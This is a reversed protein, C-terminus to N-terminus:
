GSVIPKLKKKKRELKEKQEEDKLAKEKVESDELAEKANERRKELSAIYEDIKFDKEGLHRKILGIMTQRSNIEIFKQHIAQCRLIREEPKDIALALSKISARKEPCLILELVISFLLAEEDRKLIPISSLYERLDDSIQYSAVLPQVYSAWKKTKFKEEELELKINKLELDQSNILVEKSRLLDQADKLANADADILHKQVEELIRVFELILPKYTEKENSSIKWFRILATLNEVVVDINFREELAKVTEKLIEEETMTANVVSTGSFKMGQITQPNTRMEVERVLDRALNILLILKKKEYDPSVKLEDIIKKVRFFEKNEPIDTKIM